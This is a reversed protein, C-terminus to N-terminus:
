NHRLATSPNVSIARRCPVFAAALAAGALTLAATLITALDSTHVGYLLHALFRALAMATLFGIGLGSGLVALLDRMVLGLVTVRDAGLAIRIGFERTRLSVTYSVVGYIGIAALALALMGLVGVLSLAFIRDALSKTVYDDMPQVHFMPQNPDLERLAARVAPYFRWPDGSTRVLLHYYSDAHQAQPCYVGHSPGEDMGHQWVDGVIGVITVWDSRGGLGIRKGIPDENPFQSRAWSESIIAVPPTNPGDQNTFFRGRRLPIKM